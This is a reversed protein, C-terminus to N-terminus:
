GINRSFSHVVARWRRSLFRSEPVAHEGVRFRLEVTRMRVESGVAGETVSQFGDGKDITAVPRIALSSALQQRFQALMQRWSPVDGSDHPLRIPCRIRLGKNGGTNLVTVSDVDMSEFMFLKGFM